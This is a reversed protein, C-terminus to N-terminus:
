DKSLLGSIAMDRIFQKETDAPLELLDLLEGLAQKDTSAIVKKLIKEYQQELYDCFALRHAQTPTVNLTMYCAEAVQSFLKARAEPHKYLEYINLSTDEEQLKKAIELLKPIDGAEVPTDDAMYALRHQELELRDKEAQELYDNNGM